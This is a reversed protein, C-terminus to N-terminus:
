AGPGACLHAISIHPLAEFRGKMVVRAPGEAGSSGGGAVDPDPSVRPPPVDGGRDSVGSGGGGGDRSGVAGGVLVSGHKSKPERGGGIISMIEDAQEQNGGGPGGTAGAGARRRGAFEGSSPQGSLALDDDLKGTGGRSGGRAAGVGGGPPKPMWIPEDQPSIVEQDRQGSDGRRSSEIEKDQKKPHEARMGFEPSAPQVPNSGPVLCVTTSWDESVDGTGRKVEGEWVREGGAWVRAGKVGKDVELTGANYNWIRLWAPEAGGPPVLLTIRGGQKM